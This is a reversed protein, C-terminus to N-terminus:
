ILTPIFSCFPPLLSLFTFFTLYLSHIITIFVTYFHKFFPYLSSDLSISYILRPSKVTLHFYIEISFQFCNISKLLNASLLSTSVSYFFNLLLSLLVTISLAFCSLYIFLSIILGVLCDGRRSTRAKKSDEREREIEKEM